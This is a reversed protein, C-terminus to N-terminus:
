KSGCDLTLRPVIRGTSFAMTIDPTTSSSRSRLLLTTCRSPQTALCILCILLLSQMVLQTLSCSCFALSVTLPSRQIRPREKGQGIFFLVSVMCRVQHWLFARGKVVFAFMKQEDKEDRGDDQPEITFSLVTREYNHVNHADMRCFNRFDHSGILHEGATRMDDLSLRGRVFYYRYLRWRCAFRADFSPDVPSWSIVRIDEPLHHNLMTVYDIEPGQLNGTGISVMGVGSSCMSRVTVSMVQGFASVGKDTRGCRTFKSANIDEVLKTRLLAHILKEQLWSLVNAGHVLM